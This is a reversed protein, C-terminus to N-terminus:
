PTKKNRSKSKGLFGQIKDHEAELREKSYTKYTTMELIHLVEIMRIIPEKNEKIVSIMHANNQEQEQEHDKYTAFYAILEFYREIRKCAALMNGLGHILLVREKEWLGEMDEIAHFIAEQQRREDSFM